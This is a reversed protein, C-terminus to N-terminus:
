IAALTRCFRWRTALSSQWRSQSVGGGGASEIRARGGRDRGIIWGTGSRGRVSRLVCLGQAYGRGCEQSQNARLGGSEANSKRLASLAAAAHPVGQLLFRGAHVQQVARYDAPSRE